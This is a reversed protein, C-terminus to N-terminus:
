STCIITKGQDLPNADLEVSARRTRVSEDFCPRSGMSAELRRAADGLPTIVFAFLPSLHM